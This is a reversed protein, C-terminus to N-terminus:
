LDADELPGVANTHDAAIVLEVLLGACTKMVWFGLEM